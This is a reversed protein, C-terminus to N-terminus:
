HLLIAIRTRHQSVAEPCIRSKHKRLFFSSDEEQYSKQTATSVAICTLPFSTLTYILSFSSGAWLTPTRSEKWVRQSRQTWQPYTVLSVLTACLFTTLFHGARPQSQGIEWSSAGLFEATYGPIGVTKLSRQLSHHCSQTPLSQGSHLFAVDLPKPGPYFLFSLFHNPVSQRRGRSM